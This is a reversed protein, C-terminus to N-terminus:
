RSNARNSEASGSRAKLADSFFALGLMSGSLMAAIEGVTNALAHEVTPGTFPLVIFGMILSTLYLWAAWRKLFLLGISGVLACLLAPILGILLAFDYPKPGGEVDAALWGRLPAPLRDELLSSLAAALGVFSWHVVVCIRLVTSSRM